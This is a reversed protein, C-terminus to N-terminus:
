LGTVGGANNVLLDIRGFQHVVEAIIRLADKEDSVDGVVCLVREGYKRLSRAAEELGQPDRANIAVSAGEAVFAEAIARGIGKCAGTILATKNRLRM